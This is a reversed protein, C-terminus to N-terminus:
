QFTYQLLGGSDVVCFCGHATPFAWYYYNSFIIIIIVKEKVNPKVKNIGDIVSRDQLLDASHSYISIIVHTHTHTHTHTYTSATIWTQKIQCANSRGRIIVSKCQFGTNIKMKSWWDQLVAWCLLRNVKWNGLCETKIAPVHNIHTHFYRQSHNPLARM